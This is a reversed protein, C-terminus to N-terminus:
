ERRAGRACRPRGGVRGTVRGMYAVAEVGYAVAEVRHVVAEIRFALAGSLRIAPISVPNTLLKFYFLYEGDPRSITHNSKSSRTASIEAVRKKYGEAFRLDQFM